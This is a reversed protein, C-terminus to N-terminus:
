MSLKLFMYQGCDAASPQVNYLYSRWYFVVPTSHFKDLSKHIVQASAVSTVNSTCSRIDCALSDYKYRCYMSLSRGAGTCCKQFSFFSQTSHFTSTPFLLSSLEILHKSFIMREVGDNTILLILSHLSTAVFSSPSSSNM